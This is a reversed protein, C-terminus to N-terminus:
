DSKAKNQKGLKQIFKMKKKLQKQREKKKQRKLSRKETLM